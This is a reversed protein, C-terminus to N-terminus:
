DDDSCVHIKLVTRGKAVTYLNQVDQSPRLVELKKFFAGVLESSNPIKAHQIVVDQCAAISIWFSFQPYGCM